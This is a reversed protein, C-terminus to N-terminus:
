DGRSANSRRRLAPIITIEDDDGGGAAILEGTGRIVRYERRLAPNRRAHQIFAAIYDATEDTLPESRRGGTVRVALIHWGANLIYRFREPAVLLHRGHWHWNGGFVEVAVPSAGLDCNYPGIAQQPLTHIGRAELMGQLVIESPSRHLQRAEITRALAIKRSMSAPKGHVAAHPASMIARRQVTTYQSWKLVGAERHGRIHVGERVLAKRVVERAVELSAAISKVSEGSEYLARVRSDDVAIKWRTTIGAATLRATVTARHVGLESALDKILRGASYERVLYATDLSKREAAM